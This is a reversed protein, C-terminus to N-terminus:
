FFFLFFFFFSSFFILNQFVSYFLIKEWKILNIYKLSIRLFITKLFFLNLLNLFFFIHRLKLAFNNNLLTFIRLINRKYYIILNRNLPHFLSFQFVIFYTYKLVPCIFFFQRLFKIFLKCKIKAVSSCIKIFSLLSWTM